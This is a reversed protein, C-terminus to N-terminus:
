SVLWKIFKWVKSRAKKNAEKKEHRKIRKDIREEKTKM